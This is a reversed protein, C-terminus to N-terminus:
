ILAVYFEVSLHKILGWNLTTHYYKFFFLAAKLYFLFSYYIVYMYICVYMYVIFESKSTCPIIEEEALGRFKNPKIHTHM